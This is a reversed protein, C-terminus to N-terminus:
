PYLNKLHDALTIIVIFKTTRGKTETKERKKKKKETSLKSSLDESKNPM